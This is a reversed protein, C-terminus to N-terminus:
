KGSFNSFLVWAIYLHKDQTKMWAVIPVWTEHEVVVHALFKYLDAEYENGKEEVPSNTM